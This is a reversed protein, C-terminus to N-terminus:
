RVLRSRRRLGITCRSLDGTVDIAQVGANYWAAYLIGRAEDMSFNHVGAGPINLFAVEVPQAPNAIDIVHLDGSSSTFLTAAGEEGVLVFRKSGTWGSEHAGM